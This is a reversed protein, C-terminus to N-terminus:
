SGNAGGPNMQALQAKLQAEAQKEQINWFAQSRERAEEAQGEAGIRTLDAQTNAQIEMLKGQSQMQTKQMDAQIKMQDGQQKMQAAVVKPDPPPPQPPEKAKQQAASIQQDYIGELQSSGPLGAIGWKLTELGVISAGPGGIATAFPVMAQLLAPIAQIAELRESKRQSYDTMSVQDSRVEIRYRSFQSKLLEVAKQPLPNPMETGNPGTIPQGDATHMVNSHQIITEPDFHKSIIEAKLQQMETAFRAFAIQEAQMRLSGFKAEIGRQTATASTQSSGGRMIDAIGNVQHLMAIKDQLAVNVQALTGAIMDIPVFEMCGKLGGKEQFALWNNVPTGKNGKKKLIGSLEEANAADFAFAVKLASELEVKREYLDDIAEYQDRGIEYDSTPLLEDTTTNALMLRVPFFGDLELPDAKRDLVKSYGSVWWFWEKTPKYYIEWVDARDWPSEGSKLEENDKKSSLPVENGIEEGFRKVLAEREMRRKIAIWPLETKTRVRPWRVDRWHVYDLDASETGPKKREEEFAEALVTGDEALQAETKVKEFEVEYSGVGVCLGPILYDWLSSALIEKFTDSDSEIDCNLQRQIMEGAVRAADDNADGYRRGVQVQPINGYLSAFKTKVDSHWLKIKHTETGGGLFEKVAKAGKQEFSEFFKNAHEMEVAWRRAWGESDDTFAKKEEIEM